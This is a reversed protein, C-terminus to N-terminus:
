QASAFSSWTQAPWQQPALPPWLAPALACSAPFTALSRPAFPPPRPHCHSLTHATSRMSHLPSHRVWYASQYVLRQTGSANFEFLLGDGFHTTNDHNPGGLSEPFMTGELLVSNWAVWGTVWHNLDGIIDAAYLFGTNEFDFTLSELFCAETGLIFKDPNLAHIADLNDLGLTATYDYWHVATGSTSANAQADAAVAQAYTLADRKNHDYAMIQLSPFHPLVTPGLYKGVWEVYHQVDYACSEFSQQRAEPENQPTLGWLTIGLGQYAQLWALIYDAWAQKYSGSPTDEKLCVALSNIMNNNQKMWGPPSWPSGFLRLPAGGWSAAKATAERLLPVVRQQDYALTHDFHLLAFDDTVNDFNYSHVAYDPSNIHMRMVSARLGSEGWIAEVTEERVAATMFVQTNYASTDTFCSGFGLVEQRPLSTNFSIAAGGPLSSIPLWAQAPKAAWTLGSAGSETVSVAGAAAASRWPDSAAHSVPVAALASFFLARM